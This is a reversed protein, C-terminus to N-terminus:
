TTKSKEIADDVKRILSSLEKSRWGESKPGCDTHWVLADELKIVEEDTLELTIIMMSHRKLPFWSYDMNAFIAFKDYSLQEVFKGSVTLTLCLILLLM